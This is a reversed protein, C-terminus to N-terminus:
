DQQRENPKEGKDREARAARWGIEWSGRELERRYAGAAEIPLGLKEAAYGAERLEALILFTNFPHRM